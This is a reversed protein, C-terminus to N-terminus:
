KQQKKQQLRERGGMGSVNRTMKDRGTATKAIGRDALRKTIAANKKGKASLRYKKNQIKKKLGGPDKRKRDRQQQRFLAQSKEKGLKELESILESYTKM